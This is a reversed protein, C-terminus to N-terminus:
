NTLEFPINVKHWVSIPKGALTAPTFRWSKVVKIVSKLFAASAAKKDAETTASNRKALVKAGRVTGDRHVHLKLVIRGSIGEDRLRKPYSPQVNSPLPRPVTAHEPRDVPKTPDLPPKRAKKEPKPKPKPTPPKFPKKAKVPGTPKGTGRVGTRSTRGDMPVEYVKDKDTEEAAQTPKAIPVVPKPRPTPKKVRKVKAAPPPPPPPEVELEPEEPELEEEEMSFDSLEPDGLAVEVTKEVREQSAVYATAGSLLVGLTIASPLIRREFFWGQLEPRFGDFM